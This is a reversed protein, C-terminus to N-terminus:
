IELPGLNTMPSPQRHESHKLVHQLLERISRPVRQPQTPSQYCGRQSTHGVQRGLSVGTGHVTGEELSNNRSRPECLNKGARKGRLGGCWRLGIMELIYVSEEVDVEIAGDRYRFYLGKDASRIAGGRNRKTAIAVCENDCLHSRRTLLM